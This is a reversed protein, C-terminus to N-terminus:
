DDNNDTTLAREDIGTLYERLQWYSEKPRRYADLMGKNNQVKPRGMTDGHNPDIQYDSFCFTWFGAIEDMNLATDVVEELLDAQFGESWRRKELARDGFIGGAGFESLVIPQDTAGLIESELFAEWDKVETYWGHYGNISAFDVLDYCIDDRDEYASNSAYTTLRSGDYQEAVDALAKTADYVVESETECENHLGWTVISPHNYDRHILTELRQKGKELVGDRSFDEAEFGWYPLSEVVMIGREDCLDLFYEQEPYHDRVINMGVEEVLELDLKSLRKPLAGGWDPHAELRNTGKFTIEEGNLLIDRGDVDLTRFGTRDRLTDGNGELRASISYLTPDDPTWRDISREFQVEHTADEVPISQEAVEDEEFRVTLRESAVDPTGPVAIGVRATIEATDGELEYDVYLGDIAVEPLPEIYVPRIIGGYHPWDVTPLPITTDTPANDVRVLIEHEGADLRDTIGFPTFGGEHTEVKTGDIYVTAFYSVAQFQLRLLQQEPLTFTRRYWAIGEYDYYKPHANWASPVSITEAENQFDQGIDSDLSGDPDPLFEWEGDLFTRSRDTQEFARLM